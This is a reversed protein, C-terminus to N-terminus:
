NETKKIGWERYISVNTGDTYKVSVKMTSGSVKFEAWSCANSSIKM